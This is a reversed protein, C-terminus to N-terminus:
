LLFPLITRAVLECAFDIHVGRQLEKKTDLNASELKEMSLSFEGVAKEYENGKIM